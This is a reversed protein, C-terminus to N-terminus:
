AGYWELRMGLSTAPTPAFTYPPTVTTLSTAALTTGDARPFGDQTVSETGSIPNGNIEVFTLLAAAGNFAQPVVDVEWDNAASSLATCELTVLGTADVTLTYDMPGWPDNSVTTSFPQSSSLTMSATFVQVDNILVNVTCPGAAFPSIM